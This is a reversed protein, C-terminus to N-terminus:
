PWEPRGDGAVGEVLRFVWDEFRASIEIRWATLRRIRGRIARAQLEAVDQELSTIRLLAMNARGETEARLEAVEEALLNLSTATSGAGNALQAFDERQERIQARVQNIRDEVEGRMISGMPHRLTM